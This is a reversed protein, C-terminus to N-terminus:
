QQIKMLTKAIALLRLDHNKPAILSLGCPAGDINFLPLHLQPLGALGALATFVLLTNRYENLAEVNTELLPARGPTTPLVLVDNHELAANLQKIVQLRQEKAQLFQNLTISKCWMFRANIDTAFTPSHQNIWDGHQQWIEYGQLIRFTESVKLTDTDIELTEIQCIDSIQKETSSLGNLWSRIQLSQESMDVLNEIVGINIKERKDFEHRNQESATEQFLATAILELNKLSSCMWGVTDFSPALAVMNDCAIRGHTPRLGFLANYSAPVRISGGTDTGLGIDALNAAVAVASGSSSGGAFREPTLPNLLAPYHTNQGNLSYALEDTLTKGQYIAGYSLLTKVANNTVAPVEHTELWCPNGASTPIGQVHFLDKVALRLGKIQESKAFLKPLNKKGYELRLNPLSSTNVFATSSVNIM